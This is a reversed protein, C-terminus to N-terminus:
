KWDSLMLAWTDLQIMKLQESSSSHPLAKYKVNHKIRRVNCVFTIVFQMVMIKLELHKRKNRSGATFCNKRFWQLINSCLMSYYWKCTTVSVGLFVNWCIDETYSCSKHICKLSCKAFASILHLSESNEAEWGFSYSFSCVINLVVIKLLVNNSIDAYIRM